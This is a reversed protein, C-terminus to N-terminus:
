YVGFNCLVEQFICSIGQLYTCSYQWICLLFRHPGFVKVKLLLRSPGFLASRVTLSSVGASPLSPFISSPSNKQFLCGNFHDFFIVDISIILSLVQNKPGPQFPTPTVDVIHCVAANAVFKTSTIGEAFDFIHITNGSGEVGAGLSKVVFMGALM